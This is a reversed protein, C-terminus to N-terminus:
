DLLLPTTNEKSKSGYPSPAHLPPEPRPAMDNEIDVHTDLDVLLNTNYTSNSSKPKTPSRQVLIQGIKGSAAEDNNAIEQLYVAEQEQAKRLFETDDIKHGGSAYVQWKDVNGTSPEPDYHQSTSTPMSLHGHEVVPEIHGFTSAVSHAQKPARSGQGRRLIPKTGDNRSDCYACKCPDCCLASCSHGCPDVHKNCKQTCNIMAADFAHCRLMCTHGCPLSCRCIQSCGGNIYEWDDPHEIFTKYGHNACVLPLNYGLHRIKNPNSAKNKGYMIEVVKAWTASESALMQANGFIYFGRRARSLAVCVRNDVDLFGIQYKKNSRVLSLLVIDNEEGQYNDVTVINPSPRMGYNPHQRLRKIIAKRQGNYFTLITIKSTDVGNLLLYNFFGVVMESEQANYASMNSDRSEPWEHTFFFSNCGGMGEIPPRNSVDEVCPDDKL